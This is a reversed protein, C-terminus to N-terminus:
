GVKVPVIATPFPAFVAQHGYVSFQKTLNIINNDQLQIPAGPSTLTEIAVSDYFAIRNTATGGLLRVRVNALTGDVASLDLTGVQNVGTGQVTMLRNDGDKLRILRKFMDASVHLGTITHGREEYIMAADVILDLWQDTTADAKLSLFDKGATGALRKDILATYFTRAANDTDKAYKLAMAKLLTGLVPITAREIAQVSLAGWGGYTKVPATGTDLQIKGPGTLDDGEKAQVAVATTDSKLFAYEIHNGTAPLPGQSFEPIIRRRQEVLRTYDGVWSDKVVADALVGGTYDRHFAAAAEDGSAIAKVFEAFSRWQGAPNPQSSSDRIAQEMERRMDQMQTEFQDEIQSLDARTLTETVTKEKPTTTHHRVSTIAAAEYAPHPVLSFELARVRTYTIDGEDNETWELPQFGISLKDIAGDRLLQYADRGQSTDSIKGTVEFGADTDRGSTITGIVEGHRWFVKAGVAEVSGPAFSERHRGFLWDTVEIQQGYPVGIGTFERETSEARVLAERFLLKEPAPTPSTM